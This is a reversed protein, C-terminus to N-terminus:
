AKRKSASARKREPLALLEKMTMTPEMAPVLDALADAYGLVALAGAVHRFEVTGDGSEIKRYTPLSVGIISAVYSQSLNRALRADRIRGGLTAMAEKDGRVSAM